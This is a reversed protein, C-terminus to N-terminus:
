KLTFILYLYLVYISILLIGGLRGLRPRKLPLSAIVLAIGTGAVWFIDFDIVQQNIQIPTIMSTIGLVAGINFINSGIINGVSIDSEKKVAAVASTVLEPLSTGFAILSLSIVRESVGLDRAIGAAGEVLWDAGIALGASSLVVMIIALYLPMSPSLFQEANRKIKLRSSVVSWVVYAVLMSFIVLGGSFGLVNNLILLYLVITFIMMVPWDFVLSSRNILVPSIIASIALVIAVNSINSGIVNGIAIDPYGGIAAQVSVLLEPASTGFSVVTVGVVLSSLHFHRALEVGGRVLFKGSYLLLALGGALYVFDM